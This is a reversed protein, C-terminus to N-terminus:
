KETVPKQLFDELKVGAGEYVDKQLISNQLVELMKPPEGISLEKETRLIAIDDKSVLSGKKLNRLYHLSRNTRGYNKIESGALTKKGTGIAAYITSEKIGNEILIKIIETESKTRCINVTQVMKKFMDPELAVPDDLGKEKRSLCIHKEIIAAGFCLSLAPIFFPNLSHDSVGAPIGFVASLNKIVSINYESEPAPYATVCHLLATHASPNIKNICFLAQEIDKLFSVGTSLIIPKNYSTIQRLLPIHNLEPSAIKFFDPELRNLEEASKEGFASASFLLGKRKSYEALESYFDSNQELEKFKEYLLIKGAPLSVFGSKPHLIEDAYVIQFKVAGAGAEEAATVLEKAKSISGGHSTGIEAIILPNKASFSLGDIKFDATM